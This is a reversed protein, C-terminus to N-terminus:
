NAAAPLFQSKPNNFAAMNLKKFAAKEEPRDSARLEIGQPDAPDRLRSNLMEWERVFEQWVPFDPYKKLENELKAVERDVSAFDKKRHADSIADTPWTEAQEEFDKDINALLNELQARLISDPLEFILQSAPDPHRAYNLWFRQRAKAQLVLKEELSKVGTKKVDALARPAAKIEARKRKLAEIRELIDVCILYKETWESYANRLFGNTVAARSKIFINTM